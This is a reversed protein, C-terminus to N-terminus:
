RRLWKEGGLLLFVDRAASRMGAAGVGAAALAAVEARDQLPLCGWANMARLLGRPGDDPDWIVRMTARFAPDTKAVKRSERAAWAGLGTRALRGVNYHLYAPDMMGPLAALEARTLIGKAQETLAPEAADTADSMRGAELWADDFQEDRTKAAPKKEVPKRGAAPPRAKTKEPTAKTAPVAVPVRECGVLVVAALLAVARM